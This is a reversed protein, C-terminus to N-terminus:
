IYIRENVTPTESVAASTENELWAPRQNHDNQIGWTGFIVVYRTKKGGGKRHLQQTNQHERVHLQLCGKELM